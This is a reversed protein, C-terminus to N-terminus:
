AVNRLISKRDLLSLVPKCGLGGSNNSDEDLEDDEDSM